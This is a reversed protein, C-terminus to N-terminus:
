KAYKNEIIINLDLLEVLANFGEVAKENSDYEYKEIIQNYEENILLLTNNKVKIANFEINEQSKGANNIKEEFEKFPLNKIEDLLKNLANDLEILEKKSFDQFEKPIPKFKIPM